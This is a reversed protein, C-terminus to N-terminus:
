GGCSRGTFARGNISESWCFGDTTKVCRSKDENCSIYYGNREIADMIKLIRAEEQEKAIQEASKETTFKGDIKVMNDSGAEISYAYETNQELGVVSVLGQKSVGNASPLYQATASNSAIPVKTITLKSSAPENLTWSIQATTPTKIIKGLKVVLEPAEIPEDVAEPQNVSSAPVASAPPVSVSVPEPILITESSSTKTIQPIAKPQSVSPTSSAEVQTETIEESATAPPSEEAPAVGFFSGAVIFISGLSVGLNKILSGFADFM